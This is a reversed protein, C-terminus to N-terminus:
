SYANSSIARHRQRSERERERKREREREGDRERERERERERKRWRGQEDRNGALWRPLYLGSCPERQTNGQDAYKTENHGSINDKTGRKTEEPPPPIKMWLKGGSGGHLLRIIRM